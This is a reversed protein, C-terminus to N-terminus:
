KSSVRNIRTVKRSLNELHKVVTGRLQIKKGIELQKSYWFEFLNGGEDQSLYKPNSPEQLNGSSFKSIITLELDMRQSINGVWQSRSNERNYDSLTQFYLNKYGTLTEWLAQGTKTTPNYNKSLWVIYQPDKDFVEEVDEGKYKGFPIKQDEVSKKPLNNVDSVLIIPLGKGTAVKRVAELLDLSLNKIYKYPNVHPSVKGTKYLYLTFYCNKQGTLSILFVNPYSADDLSVVGEGTISLNHNKVWEEAKLFDVETYNKTTTHTM